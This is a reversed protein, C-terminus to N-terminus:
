LKIVYISSDENQRQHAFSTVGEGIFKIIYYDCSKSHFIGTYEDTEM